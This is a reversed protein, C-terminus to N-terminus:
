LGPHLTPELVNSASCPLRGWLNVQGALVDVQGAVRNFLPSDSSASGPLNPDQEVKEIATKQWIQKCSAM